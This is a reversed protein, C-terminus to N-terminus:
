AIWAPRAASKAPKIAAIATVTQYKEQGRLLKLTLLEDIGSAFYNFVEDVFFAQHVIHVVLSKFRQNILM